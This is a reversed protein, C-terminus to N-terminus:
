FHARTATAQASKNPAEEIGRDRLARVLDDFASPGSSVSMRPVIAWLGASLAIFATDRHLTFSRVSTWPVVSEIGEVTEHLGDERLELRVQTEAHHALSREVAAWYRRSYSLSGLLAWGALALLLCMLFISGSQFAVCSALALLGSWLAVSQYHRSRALRYADGSLLEYQAVFDARSNRYELVLPM